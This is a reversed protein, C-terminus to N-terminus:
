SQSKRAKIKETLLPTLEIADAVAGYHASEFIPANPDTNIAVITQAARMGECHEPAGSIGLALYLRPKVTLGSKGVQRSLPLWGQDIVPRSACVAGGLAQALEEALAVNDQIQIGRGVAVLVEQRTIDVDASEPEVFRKFAVKPAAVPAAVREVAPVRSARGADAPFAGPNISVVARGGPPHVDVLIKGGFLQCTLALKGDQVALSKCVNVFPMKLSLALIPGLGIWTNTGGVLVLTAQTQEVVRAIAAAADPTPIELNADEAVLVKDAAGLQPAADAASPGLAMALVPAQTADGIRRAVGLMEFTIDPIVNKLGEVLVLIPAAM